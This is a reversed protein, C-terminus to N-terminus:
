IQWPARNRLSLPPNIIEASLILAKKSPLAKLLAKVPSEQAANSVIPGKFQDSILDEGSHLKVEIKRDDIATRTKFTDLASHFEFAGIEHRRIPQAPTQLVTPKPSERQEVLEEEEDEDFVEEERKFVDEYIDEIPKQQPRKGHITELISTVLTYAVALFAIVMGILEGIDIDQKM